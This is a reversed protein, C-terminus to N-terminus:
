RKHVPYHLMLWFCFLGDCNNNKFIVHALVAKKTIIVRYFLVYHQDCGERLGCGKTKSQTEEKWGVRAGERVSM